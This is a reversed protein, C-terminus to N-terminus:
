ISNIFPFFFLITSLTGLPAFRFLQNSCISWSIAFKFLYM